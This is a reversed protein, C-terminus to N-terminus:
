CLLVIACVSINQGFFIGSIFIGFNFMKVGEGQSASTLYCGFVQSSETSSMPKVTIGRMCILIDSNRHNKVCFHRNKLGNLLEITWIGEAGLPAGFLPCTNILHDVTHIM